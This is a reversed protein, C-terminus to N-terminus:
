ENKKRVVALGILSMVTVVAYSIIGADSTYPNKTDKNDEKKTEIRQADIVEQEGSEAVTFSTELKVANYKDDGNFVLTFKHTGLNLAELYKNSLEVITSGETIKADTKELEKGDVLVKDLLKLPADSKFVLTNGSKKLYVSDQGLEFKPTIKADAEAKKAAEELAKEANEENDKIVEDEAEQADILDRKVADERKSQAEKASKVIDSPLLEEQSNLGDKLWRQYMDKEQSTLLTLKNIEAIEDEVDEFEMIRKLQKSLEYTTPKISDDNMAMGDRDIAYGVIGAKKGNEGKDPQWKAFKEARSGSVVSSIDGWKNQDGEEYFSFGMLFKEPSIYKKFDNWDSDMRDRGYAQLMVYDANKYIGKLVGRDANMNTDIMFIKGKSHLIEAMYNMVDVAQKEKEHTFNYNSSYTDHYEIDIDIGDLGYKEVIENVLYEARAKNGEETNEFKQGAWSSIDLFTNRVSITRLVRQGRANMKPIDEFALKNWFESYPKTYDHFVFALNVEKPMDGFYNPRNEDPDSNQDHWTRFWGGYLPSKLEPMKPKEPLKETELRKLVNNANEAEKLLQENTRSGIKRIFDQTSNSKKLYELNEIKSKVDENSLTYSVKESKLPTGKVTMESVALSIGNKAKMKIRIAKSVLGNFKIVSQKKVDKVTEITNWNEDNNLDNKIEKGDVTTQTFGYNDPLNKLENELYVQVEFSEPMNTGGDRYFDIVLEDLKVERVDSPSGFVLGVYNEKLRDTRKWDTWKQDNKKGDVFKSTFDSGNTWGAFPIMDAKSLVSSKTVDSVLSGEARVVNQFPMVGLALTAALSLSVVSKTFKKM